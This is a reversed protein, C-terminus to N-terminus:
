SSTNVNLVGGTWYYFVASINAGCESSDITQMPVPIYDTENPGLQLTITKGVSDTGEFAQTASGANHVRTLQPCMAPYDTVEMLNVDASSCDAVSYSVTAPTDTNCAVHKKPTKIGM